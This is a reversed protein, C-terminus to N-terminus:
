WQPKQAGSRSVGGQERREKRKREVPKEKVRSDRLLGTCDWPKVKEDTLSDRRAVETLFGLERVRDAARVWAQNTRYRSWFSLVAEQWEEGLEPAYVERGDQWAELREFERVEFYLQRGHDELCARKVFRGFPGPEYGDANGLEPSELLRLTRRHDEDRCWFERIM